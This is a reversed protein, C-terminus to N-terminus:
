RLRNDLSQGLLNSDPNFYLDAAMSNAPNVVLEANNALQHNMGFAWTEGGSSTITM